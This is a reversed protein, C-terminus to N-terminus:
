REGLAPDLPGKKFVAAYTDTAFAPSYVYGYYGKKDDRPRSIM